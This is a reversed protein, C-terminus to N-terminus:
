TLLSRFPFSFPSKKTPQQTYYYANRGHLSSSVHRYLISLQLGIKKGDSGLLYNSSLFLSPMSFIRKLSIVFFYGPALAGATFATVNSTGSPLVQISTPVEPEPLVVSNRMTLRRISGLEPSIIMSPFFTRSSFGIWNRRRM